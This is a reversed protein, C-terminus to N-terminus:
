TGVTLVVLTHFPMFSLELIVGVLLINSLDLVKTCMRILMWTRAM